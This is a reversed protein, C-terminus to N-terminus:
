AHRQPRHCSPAALDAAIDDTVEAEAVNAATSGVAAVLDTRPDPLIHRQYGDVLLSRSKRGHRMEADEVSIRRDEAVGQRLRPRDGTLDVDQDRM